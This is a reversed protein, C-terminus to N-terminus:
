FCITLCIKLPFMKEPKKKYKTIMDRIDHEFFHCFIKYFYFEKFPCDWFRRQSLRKAFSIIIKDLNKSGYEEWMSFMKEKNKSM